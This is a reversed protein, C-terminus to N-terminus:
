WTWFGPILLAILSSLIGLGFYTAVGTLISTLILIPTITSSTLVLILVAISIITVIFECWRNVKRGLKSLKRM